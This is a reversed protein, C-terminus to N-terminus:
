YAISLVSFMAFILYQIKNHFINGDYTKRFNFFFITIIIQIIVGVNFGNFM